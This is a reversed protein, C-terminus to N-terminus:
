AARDNRQERRHGERVIQWARAGTIRLMQGVQAYTRRGTGSDILEQILEAKRQPIGSDKLEQVKREYEETIRMYEQILTVDKTSTSVFKSLHQTDNPPIQDM